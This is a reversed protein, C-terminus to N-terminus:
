SSASICGSCSDANFGTAAGSDRGAGAAASTRSRGRRGRTARDARTTDLGRPARVGQQSRSRASSRGSGSSRGCRAAAARRDACSSAACSGAACSGAATARCRGRHGHARGTRAADLRSAARFGQQSRRATGTCRCAAATGPTCAFRGTCTSAHGRGDRRGARDTGATDLRAAARLGQESRRTADARCRSASGRACAGRGTCAHAGTCARAAIPCRRCGHRHTGGPGAADM